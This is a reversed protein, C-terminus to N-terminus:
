NKRYKKLKEKFQNEVNFSYRTSERDNYPKNTYAENVTTVSNNLAYKVDGFENAIATNSAAGFLTIKFGLENKQPVYLKAYPKGDKTQYILPNKNEDRDYDFSTKAEDIM